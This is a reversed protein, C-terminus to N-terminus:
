HSWNAAVRFAAFAAKLNGTLQVQASSVVRSRIMLASKQELTLRDGFLLARFNTPDKAIDIILEGLFDSRITDYTSSKWIGANSVFTAGTSRIAEVFHGFLKEVQEPTSKVPVMNPIVFIQEPRVCNLLRLKEITTVAHTPSSGGGSSDPPCVPIILSDALQFIHGFGSVMLDQTEKLAAAGIDLIVSNEGAILEEVAAASEPTPPLLIDAGGADNAVELAVHIGGPMNAKFLQRALTSKGDQGGFGAVILLRKVLKSAKMKDDREQNNFFDKGDLSIIM